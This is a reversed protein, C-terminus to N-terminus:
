TRGRRRDQGSFVKDPTDDPSAQDPMDDKQKIVGDRLLMCIVHDYPWYVGEDTMPRFGEPTYKIDAATLGDGPVVYVNHAM